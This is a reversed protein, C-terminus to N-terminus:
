TRGSRGAHATHLARVARLARESEPTYGRWIIAVRDGIHKSTTEEVRAGAPQSLEVFFTLGEEGYEHIVSEIDGATIFPDDDVLYLNVFDTGGISSVRDGWVLDLTGLRRDVHHTSRASDLEETQGAPIPYEGVEKARLPIDIGPVSARAVYEDLLDAVIPDVKRLDVNDHVFRFEATSGQILFPTLDVSEAAPGVVSVVIRGESPSAEASVRAAMGWFPALKNLYDMRARVAAIQADRIEEWHEAARWQPDVALTWEVTTSPDAECSLLGALAVASAALPRRIELM